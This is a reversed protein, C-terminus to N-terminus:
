TENKSESGQESVSCLGTNENNRIHEATHALFMHVSPSIKAWPFETVIFVYLDRLRNSLRDVDVVSDCSAVRFTISFESHIHLYQTKKAVKRKELVRELAPTAETPEFCHSM